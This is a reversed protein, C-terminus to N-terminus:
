NPSLPLHLRASIRSRSTQERDVTACAPRRRGGTRGRLQPVGLVSMAAALFLNFASHLESRTKSYM